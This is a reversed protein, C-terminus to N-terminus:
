RVNLTGQRRDVIHSVRIPRTSRIPDVWTSCIDDVEDGYKVYYGIWWKM